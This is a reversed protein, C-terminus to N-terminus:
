RVAEPREAQFTVKRNSSCPEFCVAFRVEVLSPRNSRSSSSLPDLNCINIPSNKVELALIRNTTSFPPASLSDLMGNGHQMLRPTPSHDEIKEAHSMSIPRSPIDM